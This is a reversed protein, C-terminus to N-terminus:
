DLPAVSGANNGCDIQSILNSFVHFILNKTLKLYMKSNLFRFPFFSVFFILFPVCRFSVSRFFYQIELFPVFRFSIM